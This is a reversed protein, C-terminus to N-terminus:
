HSFEIIKDIKPENSTSLEQYFFFIWQYCWESGKQSDFNTFESTRQWIGAPSKNETQDNLLFWFIEKNQRKEGKIKGPKQYLSLIRFLLTLVILFGKASSYLELQHNQPFYFCLLENQSFSTLIELCSSVMQKKQGKGDTLKKISLNCGFMLFIFCKISSSNQLQFVLCQQFLDM